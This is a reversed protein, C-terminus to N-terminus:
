VAPLFEMELGSGAGEPMTFGAANLEATYYEMIASQVDEMVAEFSAADSPAEVTVDANFIPQLVINLHGTESTDGYVSLETITHGFRSVWLEMTPVYETEGQNEEPESTLDETVESFDIDENCKKLESGLQTNELGEFFAASADEDVDVKYGLSATGNVSKSGLEETIRLIQNDRYLSMVEDTMAKDSQIKKSLDTFCAQQSAVDGYIDEYDSAKVSIWRDDIKEIIATAYPPITGDSQSVVNEVIDKVGSVKFYLTDGVIRGSGNAEFDLQMEEDDISVDAKINFDGNGESSKGDLAIDVKIGEDEFAITGTSSMTKAQIANLVADHVVKDPNQYWMTYALAGGGGLLVLAAALIGGIILRPSRKKSQSPEAPAPQAPATSEATEEPTVNTNSDSDM